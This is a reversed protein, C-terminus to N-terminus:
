AIWPLPGYMPLFGTRLVASKRLSEPIPAFLGPIPQWQRVQAWRQFENRVRLMNSPCFVHGEAVTVADRGAVEAELAAVRRRWDEREMLLAEVETVLGDVRRRLTKKSVWGSM